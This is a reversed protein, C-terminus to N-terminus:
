NIPKLGYGRCLRDTAAVVDQRDLIELLLAITEEGDQPSREIHQSLVLQAERMAYVILEEDTMGPVRPISMGPEM